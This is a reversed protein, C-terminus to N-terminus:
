THPLNQHHSLKGSHGHTSWGVQSRRSIMDAFAYSSLEPHNAIHDIEANSADHIGLGAGALTDNIFSKLSPLNGPTEPDLYHNLQM